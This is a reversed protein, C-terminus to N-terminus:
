STWYSLKKQLTNVSLRTCISVDLGYSVAQLIESHFYAPNYYEVQNVKQVKSREQDSYETYRVVALPSDKTPNKEEFITVNIINQKV